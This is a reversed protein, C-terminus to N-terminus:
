NVLVKRGVCRLVVHEGDDVPEVAVRRDVGVQHLVRERPVEVELGRQQAGVGLLVHVAQVRDVEALEDHTSGARAGARRRADLGTAPRCTTTM